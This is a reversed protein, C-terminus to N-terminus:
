VASSHRIFYPNILSRGNLRPLSFLGDNSIMGTCVLHRQLYTFPLAGKILSQTVEVPM